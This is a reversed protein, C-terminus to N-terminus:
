LSPLTKSEPARPRCFKLFVTQQRGVRNDKKQGVNAKILPRQIWVVASQWARVLCEM